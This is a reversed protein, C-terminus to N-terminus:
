ERAAVSGKASLFQAGNDPVRPLASRLLSSLPVLPSPSATSRLFVSICCRESTVNEPAKGLGPLRPNPVPEPPLQCTSASFYKVWDPVYNCIKEDAKWKICINEKTLSNRERWNWGMPTCILTIGEKKQLLDFCFGITFYLLMVMRPGFLSIHTLGCLWWLAWQMICVLIDHREFSFYPIYRCCVHINQCHRMTTNSDYKLVSKFCFLSELTWTNVQTHKLLKMDM